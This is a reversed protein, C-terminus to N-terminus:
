RAAVGRGPVEGREGGGPVRATGYRGPDREQKIREQQSVRTTRLWPETTRIKEHFASEIKRRRVAPCNERSAREDKECRSKEAATEKLEWGGQPKEVSKAKRADSGVSTVL